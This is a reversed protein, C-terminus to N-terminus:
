ITSTTHEVVVTDHHDEDAKGAIAGAVGGVVAGVVTGIGPVVSGVVAGGVAGVVAGGAEEGGNRHGGSIVVAERRQPVEQVVTEREIVRDAV